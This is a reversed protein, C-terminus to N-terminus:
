ENPIELKKIEVMVDEITPFLKGALEMNKKASRVDRRRDAETHKYRPANTPRATKVQLTYGERWQRITFLDFGSM